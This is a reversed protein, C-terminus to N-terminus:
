CNGPVQGDSEDGPYLLPAPWLVRWSPEPVAERLCHFQSNHIYGIGSFFVKFFLSYQDVALLGNYLSAQEGTLMVLSLAILGILGLVSLWGLLDKRDDPLLLDLVFIVFAFGALAFEPTLLHLNATLNATTM